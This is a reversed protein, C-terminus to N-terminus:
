TFQLVGMGIMSPGMARFVRSIADSKWLFSPRLPLYGHAAVQPMLLGVQLLGGAIVAWALYMAKENVDGTATLAAFILAVNLLAPALAPLAFKKLSNLIAMFYAYFSVLFLFPFM